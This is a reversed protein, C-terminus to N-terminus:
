EPTANRTTGPTGTVEGYFWGQERSVRDVDGFGLMDGPGTRPPLTVQISPTWPAFAEPAPPRYGLASHPRVLADPIPGGEILTALRLYLLYNGDSRWSPETGAWVRALNAKRQGTNVNILSLSAAMSMIRQTSPMWEELTREVVAIQRGDPSWALPGPESLRAIRRLGSDLVDVICLWHRVASPAGPANLRAAPERLVFALKHGDPSWDLGGLRSIAYTAPFTTLPRWADEQLDVLWINSTAPKEGDPDHQVLGCAVVDGKPSWSASVCEGYPQNHVVRINERQLDFILLGERATQSQYRILALHSEAPSWSPAKKLYTTGPMPTRTLVAGSRPDLLLVNRFTLDIAAILNDRPSLKAESLGFIPGIRHEPWIAHSRGIGLLYRDLFFPNARDELVASVLLLPIAATVLLRLDARLGVLGQRPRRRRLAALVKLGRRASVAWVLLFAPIELIGHPLLIGALVGGVGSGGLDRTFACHYVMGRGIQAGLAAAQGLAFLGGSLVGGLFGLAASTLNHLFILLWRPCAQMWQGVAPQGEPLAAQLPSGSVLVFSIYAAVAVTIVGAIALLWLGRAERPPQGAQQRAGGSMTDPQLNSM